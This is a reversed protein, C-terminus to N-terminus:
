RASEAILDVVYQMLMFLARAEVAECKAVRGWQGVKAQDIALESGLEVLTRWSDAAEHDRRRTSVLKPEGRILRQAKWVGDCSAYTQVPLARDEALNLDIEVDAIGVM